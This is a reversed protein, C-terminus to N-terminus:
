DDIEVKSSDDDVDTETSKHVEREIETDAWAPSTIALACSALVAFTWKTKM